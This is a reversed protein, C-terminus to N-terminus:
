CIPELAGNVQGPVVIAHCVQLSGLTLIGYKAAKTSVPTLLKEVECFM